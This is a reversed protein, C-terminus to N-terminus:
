WEDQDPIEVINELAKKILEIGGLVVTDPFKVDVKESDWSRRNKLPIGDNGGHNAKKRVIQDQDIKQDTELPRKLKLVAPDVVDVADRSLLQKALIGNALNTEAIYEHRKSFWVGADHRLSQTTPSILM